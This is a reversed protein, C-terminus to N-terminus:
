KAVEAYLNGNIKLEAIMEASFLMGIPLLKPNVKTSAYILWGNTSTAGRVVVTVFDDWPEMTDGEYILTGTKDKLGTCQLIEKAPGSYWGFKSSKYNRDFWELVSARETDKLKLKAVATKLAAANFLLNGSGLIGINDILVNISRTKSQKAATFYEATIVARFKFRDLIAM